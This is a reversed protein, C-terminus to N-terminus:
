QRGDGSASSSSLVGGRLDVVLAFFSLPSISGAKGSSAQILSMPLQPVIMQAMNSTELLSIASSIIPHQFFSCITKNQKNQKKQTYQKKQTCQKKKHVCSFCFCVFTNTKNQKKHTCLYLLKGSHLFASDKAHM